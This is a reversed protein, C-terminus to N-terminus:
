PMPPVDGLVGRLASGVANGAAEGIAQPNANTPAVQVTINNTVPGMSVVTPRGADPVVARMRADAELAPLDIGM